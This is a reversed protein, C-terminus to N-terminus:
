RDVNKELVSRTAEFKGIFLQAMNPTEHQLGSYIDRCGDQQAIITLMDQWINAAESDQELVNLGASLPITAIETVPMKRQLFSSPLNPRSVTIEYLDRIFLASANDLAPGKLSM